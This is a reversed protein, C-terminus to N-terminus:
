KKSKTRKKYQFNNTLSKRDIYVKSGNKIIYKGNKPGTYIMVKGGHKARKFSRSLNLLIQAAHAAQRDELHEAPKMMPHTIRRSLRSSVREQATLRKKRSAIPEKKPMNRHFGTYGNQSNSRTHFDTEHYLREEKSDRSPGLLDATRYTKSLKHGSTKYTRSTIPTATNFGPYPSLGRGPNKSLRPADPPTLLRSTISTATNFGPYPQLGRGPTQSLRPAPLPNLPNM